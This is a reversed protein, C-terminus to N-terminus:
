FVFWLGCDCFLIGLWPFLCANLGGAQIKLVFYGEGAASARLRWREAALSSM